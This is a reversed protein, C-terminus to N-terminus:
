DGDLPELDCEFGKSCAFSGDRSQVVFTGNGNDRVVLSGSDVPVLFELAGDGLVRFDVDLASSEGDVNADMNVSFVLEQSALTDSDVGEGVYVRVSDDDAIPTLEVSTDGVRYRCAAVTGWVVPDLGRESFTATLDVTGNGLDVAAPLMWGPCIRTAELYGNAKVTLHLRNAGSRAPDASVTDVLEGLFERLRAVLDTSALVASFAAVAAALVPADGRDLVGSPSGYAEVVETMDPARPKVVEPTSCALPLGALTAVPWLSWSRIRAMGLSYGYQLGAAAAFTAGIFTAAAFRGAAASL